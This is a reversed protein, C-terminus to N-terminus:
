VYPLRIIDVRRSFPPIALSLRAPRKRRRRSRYLRCALLIVILITILVGLIIYEVLLRGKINLLGMQVPGVNLM